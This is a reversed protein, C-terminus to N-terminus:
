APSQQDMIREMEDLMSELLPGGDEWFAVLQQHSRSEANCFASFEDDVQAALTGLAEFGLTGAVGRIRHAQNAIAQLAEGRRQEKIVMAKLGELDLIREDLADLFGARVLAVRTALDSGSLRTETMATM